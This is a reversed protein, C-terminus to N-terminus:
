RCKNHSDANWCKKVDWRLECHPHKTVKDADVYEVKRVEHMLEVELRNCRTSILVSRGCSEVALVKDVLLVEGGYKVCLVNHGTWKGSTVKGTVM